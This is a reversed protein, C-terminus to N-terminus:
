HCRRMMPSHYHHCTRHRRRHRCPLNCSHPRQLSLGPLPSVIAWGQPGESRPPAGQQPGKLDPGVLQVKRFAALDTDCHSNVFGQKAMSSLDHQKISCAAAHTVSNLAAPYEPALTTPLTSLLAVDTDSDNGAPRASSNDRGAPPAMDGVMAVPSLSATIALLGRM